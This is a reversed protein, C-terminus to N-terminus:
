GVGERSPSVTFGSEMWDGISSILEARPVPLTFIHDSKTSFLLTVLERDFNPFEDFLQNEYNYPQAGFRTYTIHFRCGRQTLATIRQEFGDRDLQEPQFFLAADPESSKGQPRLGLRRLIHRRWRWGQSAKWLLNKVRYRATPYAYGDILACGVIRDSSPAAALASYAGTCLGLLVFRQAGFRSTLDDMAEAVDVMTQEVYTREGNARDSDGIGSMDYRLSAFGRGALDRSLDVYLRHPGVHHFLGASLFLVFPAADDVGEDPVTVIGMMRDEDGLFVPQENM